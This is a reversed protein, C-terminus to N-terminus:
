EFVIFNHPNIAMTENWLEFHVLPKNDGNSRYAIGIVEGCKVGDGAKKFITEVGKYVSIYNFPHLIYIYHGENPDYGSSLVMGEKISAVPASSEVSLDVGLHHDLPSYDRVMIGKVPSAFSILSSSSPTTYSIDYMEEEEFDKCFRKEADSKDILDSTTAAAKLSDITFTSDIKIQNMMIRHMVNLYEQELSVVQTLSDLRISNEISEKRLKYDVNEPLLGRLPTYWILLSLLVFVVLMIAFLTMFTGLMSLRIHFVDELTGENLVTIRYRMKIKHFFSERGKKM